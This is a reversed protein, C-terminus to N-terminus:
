WGAKKTAEYFYDEFDNSSLKEELKELCQSLKEKEDYINGWSSVIATAGYKQINNTEENTDIALLERHFEKFKDKDKIEFVLTLYKEDKKM